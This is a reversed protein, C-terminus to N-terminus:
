PIPRPDEGYWAESAEPIEAVGIDSQVSSRPREQRASSARRRAGDPADQMQAKLLDNHMKKARTVMDSCFTVKCESFGEAFFQTVTLVPRYNLEKRGFRFVTEVFRLDNKGSLDYGKEVVFRSFYRSFNLFIYHLIPLFAEPAGASIPGAELHVPYRITKLHNRLTEFGRDPM